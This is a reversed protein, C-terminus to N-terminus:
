AWGKADFYTCGGGADLSWHNLGMNALRNPDYAGVPIGAMTYALWNGNGRAWKLTALPYLDSGGNLTDTRGASVINGGPGTIFRM